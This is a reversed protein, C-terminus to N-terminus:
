KYYGDNGNTIFKPSIALIQFKFVAQVERHEKIPFVDQLGSLYYWFTLCFHAYIM